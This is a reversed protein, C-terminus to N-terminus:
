LHLENWTKWDLKKVYHNVSSTSYIANHVGKLRVFVSWDIIYIKSLYMILVHYLKNKNIWICGKNMFIIFIISRLLIEVPYSFITKYYPFTQYLHWLTNVQLLVVTKRSLALVQHNVIFCKAIGIVKKINTIRHKTQHKLSM